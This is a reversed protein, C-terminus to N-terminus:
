RSTEQAAALIARKAARRADRDTYDRNAALLELLVRADRRENVPPPLRLAAQARRPVGCLDLLPGAPGAPHARSDELRIRTVPLEAAIREAMADLDAAARHRAAFDAFDLTMASSKVHEWYASELWDQPTRTSYYFAVPTGPARSEAVRAMERALELAAGYDAIGARGPMHGALEEASLCLVRKPMAGVRDLLAAFRAAFKDLTFPDRWTSYGRAAHCLPEIEGKLVSRLFPRLAARNGRLVAQVTSTGTKHFGAHIVIRRPM